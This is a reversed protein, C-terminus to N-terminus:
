LEKGQSRHQASAFRHSMKIDIVPSRMIGLQTGPRGRMENWMRVGDRCRVGDGCM